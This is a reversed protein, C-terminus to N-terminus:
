GLIVGVYVRIGGYIDWLLITAEMKREMVGIYDWCIGENGWIYGM